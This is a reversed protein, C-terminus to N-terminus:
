WVARPRGGGGGKGKARRSHRKKKKKQRGSKTREKPAQPHFAGKRTHGLDKTGKGWGRLPPYPIPVKETLPAAGRKKKGVIIRM